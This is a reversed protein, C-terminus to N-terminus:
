TLSMIWNPDRNVENTGITSYKSICHPSSYRVTNLTFYSPKAYIYFPNALWFDTKLHDPQSMNLIQGEFHPTKIFKSNSLDSKSDGRYAKLKCYYSYQVPRTNLDQIYMWAISIPLMKTYKKTNESYHQHSSFQIRTRWLKPLLQQLLKCWLNTICRPSANRVHESNLHDIANPKPIANPKRIKSFFPM